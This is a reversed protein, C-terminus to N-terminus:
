VRVQKESPYRMMARAFHTMALAASRKWMAKFVIGTDNEYDNVVTYPYADIKDLARLLLPQFASSTRQTTPM